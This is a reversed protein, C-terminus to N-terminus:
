WQVLSHCNCKDSSDSCDSAVFSGVQNRTAHMRQRNWRVFVCPQWPCLCWPVWGMQHSRKAKKHSIELLDLWTWVNRCFLVLLQCVCLQHRLFSIHHRWSSACFAGEMHWTTWMDFAWGVAKCSDLVKQVSCGGTQKRCTQLCCSSCVCVLLDNCCWWMRCCCSKQMNHFDVVLVVVVVQQQGCRLSQDCSDNQWSCDLGAIFLLPMMVVSVQRQFDPVPLELGLQAFGLFFVLICLVWTVAVELLLVMVVMFLLWTSAATSM